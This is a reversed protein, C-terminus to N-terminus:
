SSTITDDSLVSSAHDSLPNPIRAFPVAKVHSAHDIILIPSTEPFAEHDILKRSNLEMKM